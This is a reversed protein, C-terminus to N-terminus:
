ICFFHVYKAGSAAFIDAWEDPDLISHINLSFYSFLSRYKSYFEARFQSAFDAYTWDPPYTRNMFAVLNQDPNSGKWAWWM